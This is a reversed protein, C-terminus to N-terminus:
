IKCLTEDIPKPKQYGASKIDLTKKSLKILIGTSEAQRKDSFTVINTIINTEQHLMGIRLKIIEAMRVAKEANIGFGSISITQGEKLAYIAFSIQKRM